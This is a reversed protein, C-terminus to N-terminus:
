IHILSLDYVARELRERDPHDAVGEVVVESIFVQPESSGLPADSGPATVQEATPRLEADAQQARVQSGASLALVPAVLAGVVLRGLPMANASHTLGKAMVPRLM